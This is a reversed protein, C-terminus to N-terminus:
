PTGGRPPYSRRRLWLGCGYVAVGWLLGGGCGGQAEDMVGRTACPEGPPNATSGERPKFSDLQGDGDADTDIENVIGDGDADPDEGNPVGDGDADEDLFPCAELDVGSDFGDEGPVCFSAYWPGAEASELWFWWGTDVASDVAISACGDAARLDEISAFAVEEGASRCGTLVIFGVAWGFAATNRLVALM